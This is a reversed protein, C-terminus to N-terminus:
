NCRAGVSPNLYIFMCTFELKVPQHVSVFRTGRTIWLKINVEYNQTKKKSWMGASLIIYLLFFKSAKIFNFYYYYFFLNIRICFYRRIIIWTYGPLHHFHDFTWNRQEAGQSVNGCWPANFSARVSYRVESEPLYLCIRDQSHFLPCVRQGQGSPTHPTPATTIFCKTKTYDYHFSHEYKRCSSLYM